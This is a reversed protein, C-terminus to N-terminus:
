GEEHIELRFSLFERENAVVRMYQAGEKGLALTQLFNFTYKKRRRTSSPKMISGVARSSSVASRVCEHIAAYECPTCFFSQTGREWRSNQHESFSIPWYEGFKLMRWTVFAEVKKALRRFRM